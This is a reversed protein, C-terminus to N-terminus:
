KYKEYKSKLSKIESLLMKIDIVRITPKGSLEVYESIFSELEDLSNTPKTTRSPQVKCVDLEYMSGKNCNHICFSNGEFTDINHVCTLCGDITRVGEGKDEAKSALLLKANKVCAELEEYAHGDYSKKNLLYETAWLLRSLVERKSFANNYGEIDVIKQIKSDIDQIPNGEEAKSLAQQAYEEMASIVYSESWVPHGFEGLPLKRRLIEQATIQTIEKEM